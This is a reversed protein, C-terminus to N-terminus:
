PRAAPRRPGRRVLVFWNKFPVLGKCYDRLMGCLRKMVTTKGARVPNLPDGEIEVWFITNLNNQKRQWISRITESENTPIAPVKQYNDSPRDSGNIIGSLSDTLRRGPMPSAQLDTENYSTQHMVDDAFHDM